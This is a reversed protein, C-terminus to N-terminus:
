KRGGLELVEAKSAVFWWWFLRLRGLGDVGEYFAGETCVRANHRPPRWSNGDLNRDQARLVKGACVILRLDGVPRQAGHASVSM